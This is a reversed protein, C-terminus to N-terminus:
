HGDIKMIKREMKEWASLNVMLTKVIAIVEWVIRQRQDRRGEPTRYPLFPKGEIRSTENPPDVLYVSM